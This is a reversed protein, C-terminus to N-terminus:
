WDEIGERDKGNSDGEAQLAKEEQLIQDIINVDRITWFNLCAAVFAHSKDELVTEEVATFCFRLFQYGHDNGIAKNAAFDGGPVTLIRYSHQTCLSWLALMLRKPDISTALPHNFVNVKMWLFMGGMPWNFTFMETCGTGTTLFRNEEFITAMMIMRRENVSRLGELWKVWGQLGWGISRDTSSTDKFDGLIQAVIAQVFGSPSQTTGDTIRFLQECVSPQATIWGLRCGPAITKSFSDLRIVRGDIDISLFSPMLEDLFKFGTSQCEPDDEIITVDVNSCISINGQTTINLSSGLYSKPWYQGRTHDREKRLIGPKFFMLCAARVMCWCGKVIWRSLFLTPKIQALPPAYVFEEVLLGERDRVGSLDKDWPNFLLEYIKSLGDGSGGNIMIDAGGQYPINPHYVTNVLKKLWVYLPPYGQASGYQLATDLNIKRTSAKSQSSRLIQVHHKSISGLDHDRDKGNSALFNSEGVLSFELTEFPFNGPFPLGGALNGMEPIRLFKYYEKLVNPARKKSVKSFHHSIDLVKPRTDCNNTSQPSM